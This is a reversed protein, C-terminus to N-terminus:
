SRGIPIHPEAGMAVLILLVAAVAVLAVLVPLYRRPDAAHVTV